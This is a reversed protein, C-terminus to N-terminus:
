AARCATFPPRLCCYPVHRVPAVRDRRSRRGSADMKGADALEVVTPPPMAPVVGASQAALEAVLRGYTELSEATGHEGIYRVRGRIRIYARGSPKHLCYKPVLSRAAPM